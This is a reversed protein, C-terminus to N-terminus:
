RAEGSVAINSLFTAYAKDQAKVLPVYASYCTDCLLNEVKSGMNNVRNIKHWTNTSNQRVYEEKGCRDCMYLDYNIIIM